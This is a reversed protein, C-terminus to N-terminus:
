RALEKRIETLLLALAATTPNISGLKFKEGVYDPALYGDSVVFAYLGKGAISVWLKGTGTGIIGGGPGHRPPDLVLLINLLTGDQDTWDLAVPGARLDAAAQAYTDPGNIIQGYSDTIYM